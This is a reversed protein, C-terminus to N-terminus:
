SKVNQPMKIKYLMLICIYLRREAEDWIMPSPTSLASEIRFQNEKVANDTFGVMYFSAGQIINVEITIIAANVGYVAGGYTKVLM